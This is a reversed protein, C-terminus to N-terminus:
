KKKRKKGNKKQEINIQKIDKATFSTGQDEKKISQKRKFVLGALDDPPLMGWINYNLKTITRDFFYGPKCM